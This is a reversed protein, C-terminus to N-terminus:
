RPQPEGPFQVENAYVDYVQVIHPHGSCKIHLSIEQRARSRDYLCKLAYNEGTAKNKCPRCHSTMKIDFM